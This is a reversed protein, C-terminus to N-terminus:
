RFLSKLEVVCSLLTVFKNISTIYMDSYKSVILAADLTKEHKNQSNLYEFFPEGLSMLADKEKGKFKTMEQYMMKGNIAPSEVIDYLVMDQKGSESFRKVSEETITEGADKIEQLHVLLHRFDPFNLQFLAKMGKPEFAIGENKCVNVAFSVYLKKHEELADGSFDYDINTCRSKVADNMKEIENTIFIFNVTTCKDLIIKFADQLDNRINEAEDIIVCKQKQMVSIGSAFGMVKERLTTIKFDNSGSLYMVEYDPGVTLLRASTTKGTGPSSYLMLRYGKKKKTEDLIRMIRSPLILDSWEKPFYKGLITSNTDAM